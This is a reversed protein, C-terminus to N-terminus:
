KPTKIGALFDFNVNAKKIADCLVGARDYDARVSLDCITRCPRTSCNWRPSKSWELPVSGKSLITRRLLGNNTYIELDVARQFLGSCSEVGVFLVDNRDKAIRPLVGDRVHANHRARKRLKEDRIAGKLSVERGHEAKVIEAVTIAGFICWRRDDHEADFINANRNDLNWFLGWFLLIDGPRASLLAKARRNSCNDGYTKNEWDPDLHTRLRKPDSVFPWVAVPYKASSGADPFSVFAFRNNPFLPARADKQHGTNAGVNILYIKAM